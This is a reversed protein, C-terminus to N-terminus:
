KRRRKKKKPALQQYRVIRMMREIESVTHAEVETSQAEAEEVLKTAREKWGPPLPPLKSEDGFLREYNEAKM